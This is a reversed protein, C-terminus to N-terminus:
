RIPTTYRYVIVRFYAPADRPGSSAWRRPGRRYSRCHSGTTRRSTRDWPRCYSVAGRGSRDGQPCPALLEHYTRLNWNLCNGPLGGDFPPELNQPKAPRRPEAHYALHRTDRRRDHFRLRRRDAHLFRLRPELFLSERPPHSVEEQSLACNMRYQAAMLRRGTAHKWAWFSHWSACRCSLRTCDSFAPVILDRILGAAPPNSRSRRSFWAAQRATFLAESAM